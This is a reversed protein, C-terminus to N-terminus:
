TMMRTSKYVLKPRVEPEMDEVGEDVELENGAGAGTGVGISKVEKHSNYASSLVAPDKRMSPPRYSKARPEDEAAKLSEPEESHVRAMERDALEKTEAMRRQINGVEEGCDGDRLFQHAARECMSQVYELGKDLEDYVDPQQADLGSRGAAGRGYLSRGLAAQAMLLGPTTTMPGMRRTSRFRLPPLEEEAEDGAVPAAALPAIPASPINSGNRDQPAAHADTKNEAKDQEDDSTDPMELEALRKIQAVKAAMKAKRMMNRSLSVFKVLDEFFVQVYSDYYVIIMSRTRYQPAAGEASAMSDSRHRKRLAARARAQGAARAQSTQRAVASPSQSDAPSTPAPQDAGPKEAAGVASSPEPEPQPTTERAHMEPEDRPKLSETSGKNRVSRTPSIGGNAKACSSSQSATLQALEVQRKAIQGNLDELRKLWDPINSILYKLADM